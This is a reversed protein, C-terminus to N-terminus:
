NQERQLMENYASAIQDVLPSPAVAEGDFAVVPVIGLVSQTVFIGEANRLHQPKIV